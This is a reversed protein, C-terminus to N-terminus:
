WGLGTLGAPYSDSINPAHFISGHCPADAIHILLRGGQSTWNLSAARELGTYVDEATDDGGHAKVTGMWSVFDELDKAARISPGSRNLPNAASLAMFDKVVTEEGYDRYGIFAVRLVARPHVELIRESIQKIKNRVMDISSQMSGTVDVVFVLDLQSSRLIITRVAKLKDMSAREERLGAVRLKEKLLSNEREAAIARLSSASPAAPKFTSAGAGRSSMLAAMQARLAAYEREAAAARLSGEDVAEEVKGLFSTFARRSM